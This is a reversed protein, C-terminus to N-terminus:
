KKVLENVIKLAEETHKKAETQSSFVHRIIGDKGIVFTTRNPLLGLTKGVGYLKSVENKEDSLLLFPLHHEERFKVHSEPSDASVGIVEAGADRFIEYSDRFTCAEVTCGPTFDKPYFYLVVIKKGLYDKLSVNKKDQDPLTFDPAADGIKLTSMTKGGKGSNKKEPNRCSFIGPLFLVLVLLYIKKMQNGHQIIFM